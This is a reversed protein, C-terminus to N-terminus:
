MHMIRKPVCVMHVEDILLIDKSITVQQVVTEMFYSVYLTIYEKGGKPIGLECTVKWIRKNMKCPVYLITRLKADRKEYLISQKYPQLRHHELDALQFSPDRKSKDEHVQQQNQVTQLIIQLAEQIGQHVQICVRVVKENGDEYNKGM